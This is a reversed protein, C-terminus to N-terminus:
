EGESFRCTSRESSLSRSRTNLTDSVSASLTDFILKETEEAGNSPSKHFALEDDVESVLINDNQCEEKRDSIDDDLIKCLVSALTMPRGKKKKGLDPKPETVEKFILNKESLASVHDVSHTKLEYEEILDSFYFLNDKENESHIGLEHSVSTDSEVIISEPELDGSSNSEM